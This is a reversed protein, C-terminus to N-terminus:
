WFLLHCFGNHKTPQANDLLLPTLSKTEPIEAKATNERTSTQGNARDTRKTTKDRKPHTNRHTHTHTHTNKGKSDQRPRIQACCRCCCRRCTCSTSFYEQPRIGAPLDGHQQCLVALLGARLCALVCYREDCCRLVACGGHLLDWEAEAPVFFLLLLLLGLSRCRLLGSWLGLRLLYALACPPSFSVCVCLCLSLDKTLLPHLGLFSDHSDAAKKELRTVTVATQVTPVLAVFSM